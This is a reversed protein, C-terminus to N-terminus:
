QRARLEELLQKKLEPNNQLQQILIDFNQTRKSKPMSHKIAENIKNNNLKMAHVKSVNQKPLTIPKELHSYYYDANSIKDKKHEKQSYNKFKTLTLNTLLAKNCAKHYLKTMNRDDCPKGNFLTIVLGYPNDKTVCAKQAKKWMKLLSAVEKHVHIRKEPIDKYLLTLSTNTDNFGTSKFQNIIRNPNIQSITNKNMRKLIKNSCVYCSDGEILDDSLHFDEWSLASVESIDLGTSFMIHLFIFLRVDQINEFLHSIYKLNWENSQKKPKDKPVKWDYFPNSYIIDEFVLYEFTSKLLTYCNYLMSDPIYQAKKQHRKGIAPTKKLKTIINKGFDQDIDKIKEKKLVVSLYNNIIGMNREYHTSSWQNLGIKSAYQLLFDIIVTEETIHMPADIGETEIENKRKVASSYDYFTEWIKKLNGDADAKQYIVSYAKRRKTIIAM